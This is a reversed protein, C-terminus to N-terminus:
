IYKRVLLSNDPFIFFIFIFYFFFVVRLLSIQFFNVLTRALFFMSSILLVLNFYRLYIFDLGNLEDIIVLVSLALPRYLLSNDLWIWNILQFLSFDVFPKSQLTVIINTEDWVDAIMLTNMLYIWPISILLFLIHLKNSTITM